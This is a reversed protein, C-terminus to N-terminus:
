KKYNLLKNLDNLDNKSIIASTFFYRVPTLIFQLKSSWVVKNRAYSLTKILILRNSSAILKNLFLAVHCIHDPLRPNSVKSLPESCNIDFIKLFNRILSNDKISQDFDIIHTQTICKHSQWEASNDNLSLFYNLNEIYYEKFTKRNGYKMSQYYTRPILKLLERKFYIIQVNYISFLLLFSNIQEHNFYHFSECSLLIKNHPTNTIEDLLDTIVTQPKPEILFDMHALWVTHHQNTATRTHHDEGKHNVWKVKSYNTHLRGTVPYLFDLYESEFIFDQISTSGTKPPGIHLYITKM